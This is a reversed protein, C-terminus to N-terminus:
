DKRGTVRVLWAVVAARELDLLGLRWSNYDLFFDKRYEEPLDGVAVGPFRQHWERYSAAKRRATFKTVEDPRELLAGLESGQEDLVVYTPVHTLGDNGPYAEAVAYALDLHDPRHLIRLEIGPNIRTIRAVIPLNAAVDPCGVDVLAIIRHKTGIAEIAAIEADPFVLREYNQRMAEGLSRRVLDGQTLVWDAYRDFDFGQDYSSRVLDAPIGGAGMIENIM